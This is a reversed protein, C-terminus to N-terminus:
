MGTLFKVADSKRFIADESYSQRGLRASSSRQMQVRLKEFQGATLRHAHRASWPPAFAHRYREDGLRKEPGSGSGLGATSVGGRQEAPAASASVDLPTETAARSKKPEPPLRKAAVTAAVSRQVPPASQPRVPRTHVDGHLRALKFSKTRRTRLHGPPTVKIGKAEVQLRDAASAPRPKTGGAKREEDPPPIPRWRPLNPRRLLLQSPRGAGGPCRLGTTHTCVSQAMRPCLSATAGTAVREVRARM